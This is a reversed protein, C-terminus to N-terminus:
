LNYHPKSSPASNNIAYSGHITGSTPFDTNSIAEWAEKGQEVGRWDRSSELSVEDDNGNDDDEDDVVFDVCAERLLWEIRLSGQSRYFYKLIHKYELILIDRM